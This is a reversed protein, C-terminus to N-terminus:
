GKYSPVCNLLVWLKIINQRVVKADTTRKDLSRYIKLWENILFELELQKM